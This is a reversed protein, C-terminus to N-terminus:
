CPSYFPSLLSFSFFESGHMRTSIFFAIRSLRSSKEWKRSRSWLFLGFRNQDMNFNVDFDWLMGSTIDVALGPANGSCSVPVDLIVASLGIAIAFRKLRKKVDNNALSLGLSAVVQSSSSSATM